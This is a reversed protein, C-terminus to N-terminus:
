QDDHFMPWPGLPVFFRSEQIQACLGAFVNSLDVSIKTVKHLYTVTQSVKGSSQRGTDFVNVAGEGTSQGSRM